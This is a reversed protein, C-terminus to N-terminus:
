QISDPALTRNAAETPMRVRCEGIYGKGAQYAPKKKNTRLANLSRAQAADDHHM